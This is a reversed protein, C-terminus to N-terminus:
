HVSNCFVEQTTQMSLEGYTNLTHQRLTVNDYVLSAYYYEVVDGKRFGTAAFIRIEAPPCNILLKKLTVELAGYKM